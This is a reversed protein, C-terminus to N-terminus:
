KIVVVNGYEKVGNVPKTSSYFTDESTIVERISVEKNQNTITQLEKILESVNM